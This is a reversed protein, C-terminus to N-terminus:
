SHRRWSKREKPMPIPIRYKPITLTSLEVGSNNSFRTDTYAFHNVYEVGSVNAALEAYEIFRPAQYVFKGTECANDSTQSSVLVHSGKEKLTVADEDYALFTLATELTGNDTKCTESGTWACDPLHDSPTHKMSGPLLFALQRFREWVSHPAM